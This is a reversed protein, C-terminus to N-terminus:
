IRGLREADQSVGLCTHGAGAELVHGLQNWFHAADLVGPFDLLNLPGYINRALSDHGRHLSDFRTLELKLQLRDNLM